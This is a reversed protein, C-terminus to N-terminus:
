RLRLGNDADILNPLPKPRPKRRAPKWAPRGAKDWRDMRTVIQKVRTPSIGYRRGIEAYNPCARYDELM